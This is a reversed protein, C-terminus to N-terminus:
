WFPSFAQCLQAAQPARWCHLLESEAGALDAAAAAAAEVTTSAVGGAHFPPATRRQPAAWAPPGPARAAADAGLLASCLLQKWRHLASPSEAVCLAIPCRSMCSPAQVCTCTPMCTHSCRSAHVRRRCAHMCPPCSRMGAHLRAGADSGGCSPLRLPPMNPATCTISLQQKHREAAGAGSGSPRRM